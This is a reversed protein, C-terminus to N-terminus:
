EIFSRTCFTLITIQNIELSFPRKVELSFPWERIWCVKSKQNIGIVQFTKQSNKIKVCAGKYLNKRIEDPNLKNNSKSDILNSYFM